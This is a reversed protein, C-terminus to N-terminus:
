ARATAGASSAIVCIAPAHSLRTSPGFRTSTDDITIHDSIVM